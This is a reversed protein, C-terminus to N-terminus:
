RKVCFVDGLPNVAQGRRAAELAGQADGAALRLRGVASWASAGTAPSALYSTLAHEVMNAAMKKDTVRSYLRPIMSLVANRDKAGALVVDRRLPEASDAIRNLAVLLQLVYRNAERSEPFALKWARAAQLAAEGSRAQYAIEVARQYLAQDNTKRAADLMLAYAASSDSERANIEGLLLQYFLNADLATPVPPGKDAEDDDDDKAQAPALPAHLSLLLAVLGAAFRPSFKM